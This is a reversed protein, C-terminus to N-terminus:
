LGKKWKFYTDMENLNLGNFLFEPTLGGKRAVCIGYYIYHLSATNHADPNISIKVGKDMCYYIWRWDMDLRWSDANLEMIVNNAACAEIIMKHNIPYGNRRLLLRGTPHGLMTTHPNEIAKLLRQNAKEESMDLNQHVSAVVYDFRKLFEQDYDLSGDALIDSEIGKFVKFDNGFVANLKDIEGHQQLVKEEDLGGAWYAAKSHDAIGFYQMGMNKCYNAMESLTNKGDSYTSHNHVIGKIDALEVLKPLTNLKAKEATAIFERQEPVVFQWGLNKFVEEETSAGARQLYLMLNQKDNVQTSLFEASSSHLVVASGLKREAVLHITVPLGLSQETGRWTFPGSQSENEVLIAVTKLKEHIDEIEDSAIFILNDVVESCMKVQGSLLLKIGTQAEVEKEILLSAQEAEDFHFKGIQAKKFAINELISIQTKEGFGKFGALKNELCAKELTEINSIEYEKWLTKVKKPGLGKIQMLALVGKPTKNLLINLDSFSNSALIEAINGSMTKSFGHVKELEEANSNSISDLLKDLRSAAGRFAKAKFENEEHIDMLDATLELLESIESNQM